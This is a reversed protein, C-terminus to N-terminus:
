AEPPAPLPLSLRISAGAGPQSAIECRGGIGALRQRLNALGNGEAPAAPDFGRGDDTIAIELAGGHSNFQIRAESAHAHRVLNHLVEKVALFLNHRVDASLRVAPLDLPIKLRCNVGSAGLYEEAYSGLYGALFPLSDKSPNVLWVIVDLAQVLARAKAGIAGFRSAAREVSPPQGLGADALLSIETLSSGLDDHLDRAIRAREAELARRKEGREREQIEVGLQATRQEVQRRLLSIWVLALLLVATLAGAVAMMQRLTAWVPRALLRIDAPSALLLEFAEARGARERGQAALTGTLELRSGAPLPLRGGAGSPLRAVFVRPGAQLGLVQDRSDQSLNLLLAELRVRTADLGELSWGAGILRRPAPLEERGIRRVLAERLVPSPGGLEPFGVVEVRDGAAVSGATRPVFRLGNADDMLFSEEARVHLVQGTVKVPKLVAAQADFLLLEAVRKRPLDFPYEPAPEDLHIAASRLQVEGTKLIHTVEDKVAWLCGRLRVLAGECRQVDEGANERLQVQLQGGSVWLTLRNSEVASALGRLEVYHADLSGNMLQAWTPRVPEPLVGRGLRTVRRAHIMPSFQAVTVGEVEWQEGVRQHYSDAMRIEDVFIGATADQLVVARHDAWTVVGRIRVVQGQMAEARGLHKIEAVARLRPGSGAGGSAEAEGITEILGAEPVWLRGPIWHGDLTAAGWCVGTARLRAGGWGEARGEPDDELEAAVSGTGSVLTLAVRVGPGRSVFDARGEMVAWFGEPSAPLTQGLAMRRPAPPPVRGVVRARPLGVLLQSGGGSTLAFTYHGSRPAEFWGDYCVAVYQDRSRVGPDLNAATGTQRPRLRDFDPIQWWAGEFCRWRLGPTWGSAGERPRCWAGDPATQRPLGPGECSLELVNTDERSFWGVQFPHRGQALFVLGTAPQGAATPDRNVCWAKGLCFGEGRHAGTGLGELEIVAGRPLVAQTPDAEAIVAGTNDQLIIQGGGPRSWCVVGQLRIRATVSQGPAALQQLQQLNTAVIEAAALGAALVLGSAVGRGAVSALSTRRM